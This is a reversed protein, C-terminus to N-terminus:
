RDQQAGSLRSSRKSTEAIEAYREPLRKAAEASEGFRADEYDATFSAIIARLNPDAITTVFEAPTHAPSKQSGRRALLRIMREYWITAAMQPSQEPHTAVRWQRVASILARGKIALGLVVLLVFVIVAFEQPFRVAGLRARRALNLLTAYRERAWGRMLDGLARTGHLADSALVRQHGFDYNVVWERWMSSIADLYLMARGLGSRTELAAAPTPDFTIWGYGPFYVEVWSHANRARVVYQSTVDNFEGTRFGNVVRAPIQLTRLMVAMSSAFYECHGEKRQFLFYALPDKPAIRGLQLTYGYNSRLYQEVAVAKDYATPASGAIQRALEPIRNDLKPPLKLYDPSLQWPSDAQVHRLEYDTPRGIDSDAEYVGPPHDRDLDYVAGEDDTTIMHYNGELSMPRPALFFINTGIPELLVRYHIRLQDAPRLRPGTPLGYRGDSARPVVVQRQPSWWNRGDFITLAVGRWLLDHSGHADGDVQVHMVVSNSQQIEGIQGLQVRDSFGTSLEGGAAYASLYGGSMRPLLLFIAAAIILIFLAMLPSIGVLSTGLRQMDVTNFARSQKGAAACSRRIELLIFTAVATLLFLAFMVLFASNVTLVSAALVALFSLIALFVYDRDRHASFLRVVMLALVLHVTASVFSGSVWFFDVLYFVTFSLTICQTWQDPLVFTKRKLILYGRAALGAIVLLVTAPDLQGTQALTGFGTLVMM